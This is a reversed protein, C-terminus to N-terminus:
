DNIQGEFSDCYECIGDVFHHQCKARLSDNVKMLLQIEDTLVFKDLAKRIKENNEDIKQRIEIGSM